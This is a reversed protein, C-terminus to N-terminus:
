KHQESDTRNDGIANIAANSQEEYTKVTGELWYKGETLMLIMSIGSIVISFFLINAFLPEKSTLFLALVQLGTSALKMLQVAQNPSLGISVLRHYTHDTGSTYFLLHRRWRSYIVLVTDFIPVAVTLIPVFWTSAQAKAPPNYLISIIAIFYGILQAGNDGLFLKAPTANFFLVVIGAGLITACLYAISWQGTDMTLLILYIMTGNSIGISLGDASDILNFANIVFVMWFFTTLIDLIRSLPILNGQQPILSEFMHVQNGLLIMVLTAVCQILAKHKPRIPIYDDFLGGAFIIAAPILIRVTGDNFERHLLALTILLSLFITVGGALPVPKKHQKHPQSNPIDLLRTRRAFWLVIPTLLTTLTMSYLVALLLPDTQKTAFIM